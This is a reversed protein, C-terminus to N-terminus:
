GLVHYIATFYLDKKSNMLNKTFINNLINTKPHCYDEFQCLISFFTIKNVQAKTVLNQLKELNATAANTSTISISVTM